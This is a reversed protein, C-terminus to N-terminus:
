QAFAIKGAIEDVRVHAALGERLWSAFNERMEEIVLRMMAPLRM